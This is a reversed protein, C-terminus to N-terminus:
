KLSPNVYYKQTLIFIATLSQMPLYTLLKLSLFICRNRGSTRGLEVTGSATSTQLRERFDGRSLGKKRKRAESVWM